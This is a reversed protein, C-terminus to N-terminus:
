VTCIHHKESGTKGGVSSDVQSLLTTPVQVLDVGRMYTSAVFGAMDGVVGGGLALVVTSRRDFGKDLLWSWAREATRSRKSREGVGQIFVASELGASSLGSRVEETYLAAVNRDTLVAVRRDHGLRSVVRRALGGLGGRVIRIRYSRRGLGM